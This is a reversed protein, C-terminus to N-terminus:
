LTLDEDDIDVGLLKLLAICKLDYMTFFLTDLEEESASIGLESITGHWEDDKYIVDLDFQKQLLKQYELNQESTM